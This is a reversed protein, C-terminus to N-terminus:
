KNKRQKHWLILFGLLYTNAAIALWDALFALIQLLASILRFHAYDLDLILLHVLFQEPIAAIISLMLLILAPIIQRLDTIEDNRHAYVTWAILGLLLFVMIWAAILIFFNDSATYIFTRYIVSRSVATGCTMFLDVAFYLAWACNLGTHRRCKLCVVGCLLFPSAYLLGGLLSGFVTLLLTIAAGTCLLIIGATHQRASIRPSKQLSVDPETWDSEPAAETAAAPTETVTEPTDTKEGRVLEDMTVGFLDCMKMLKDLEPVSGDTEWKSVSQRSVDLADALDGQSMGQHTRMTRINEGLTM